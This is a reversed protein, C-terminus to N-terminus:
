RNFRPRISGFYELEGSEIDTPADTIEVAVHLLKDFLSLRRTPSSFLPLSSISVALSELSPFCGIAFKPSLIRYPLRPVASSTDLFRLSTASKFFIYITDENGIEYDQPASRSGTIKLNKVLSALHLSDACLLLFHTYDLKISRYLNRQFYPKLASSVPHTVQPEESWIEDFIIDLLEGPLSQTSNASFASDTSM